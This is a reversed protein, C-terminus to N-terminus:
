VRVNEPILMRNGEVVARTVTASFTDDERSTETSLEEDLALSISTGAAVTATLLVAM